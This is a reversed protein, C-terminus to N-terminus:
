NKNNMKAVIKLIELFLNLIDLYLTIAGLIYEEPSLKHLLMHTDFIIFASFLLAGAGAMVTDLVESQLFIQMIGSLILIWLMSFLGAGWSSFDRKSQFTYITLSLVVAVTLGFAQLVVLSDYLTVIFGVTYAEVLTFAILLYFNTPTENKKIHLAILLGFSLFCGFYLLNPSSQIFLKANENFMFYAGVLTTLLLQASLIGYVKRIFGLRLSVKSQVFTNSFIESPENQKATIADVDLAFDM